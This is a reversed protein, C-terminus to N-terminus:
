TADSSSSVVTFRDAITLTEIVTIAAEKATDMEKKEMSESVDLVLVVDKPGSSAAVFWPRRSPNFLGCNERHVAPIMRFHGDHAGFYSWSPQVDFQDWYEEDAKYKEVMFPEALRSYCVSETIYDSSLGPISVKSVTKDWLASKPNLYSLYFLM